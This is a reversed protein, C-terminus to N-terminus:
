INPDKQAEQFIKTMQVYLNEDEREWRGGNPFVAKRLRNVWPVLPQYYSTFIDAYNWKDFQSVVRDLRKGNPRNDHIYIWFLVWFFSELDHMFSHQEGLLAKIAIFAKIGTKSKAGSASERQEKIALNDDENIILNNILIDRYLIGAKRLSEHKTIYGKLAELLAARSASIDSETTCKQKGQNSIDFLITQKATFIREDRQYIAATAIGARPITSRQPRYNEATMIDLGKQINSQINDNTGHVQVTYYYYYRGMNVVGKHWSDKIVLPTKPNHGAIYPTHRIVANIILRERRGNRDIEIYQKGGSTIITPNFRRTSIVFGSM